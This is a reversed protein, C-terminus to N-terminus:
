QPGPALADEVRDVFFPPYDLDVVGGAQRLGPAFTGTPPSTRYDADLSRWAWAHVPDTSRSVQAGPAILTMLPMAGHWGHLYHARRVLGYEEYDAPRPNSGMRGVRRFRYPAPQRCPRGAPM